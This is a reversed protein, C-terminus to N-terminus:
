GMSKDLQRCALHLCFMPCDRPVVGQPGGISDVVDGHEQFIPSFVDICSRLIKNIDDLEMCGTAVRGCIIRVLRRVDAVLRTKRILAGMFEFLM